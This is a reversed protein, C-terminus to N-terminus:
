SLLADYSLWWVSFFQIISFTQTIFKNQDSLCFRITHFDDFQCFNWLYYSPLNFCRLRLGTQRLYDHSLWKAPNQRCDITTARKYAWQHHQHARDTKRPYLIIVFGNHFSNPWNIWNFWVIYLTLFIFICLFMLGAFTLACKGCGPALFFHCTM